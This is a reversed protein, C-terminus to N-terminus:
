SGQVSFRWRRHVIFRVLRTLEALILGGGESLTVGNNILCKITM